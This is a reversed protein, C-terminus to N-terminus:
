WGRPWKMLFNLVSFFLLSSLKPMTRKGVGIARLGSNINWTGISLIVIAKKRLEIIGMGLGHRKAAPLFDDLTSHNLRERNYKM